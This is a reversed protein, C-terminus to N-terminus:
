IEMALVTAASPRAVSPAMAGPSMANVQNEEFIGAKVGIIGKVLLLGM